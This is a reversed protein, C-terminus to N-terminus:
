RGDEGQRLTQPEEQSIATVGNRDTSTMQALRVVTLVVAVVLASYGIAKRFGASAAVAVVAALGLLAMAVGEWAYQGFGYALDEAVQPTNARAVDLIQPLLRALGACGIGFLVGYCAAWGGIKLAVARGGLSAASGVVLAAHLLVIAVMAPIVRDGAWTMLLTAVAASAVLALLGGSLRGESPTAAQDHPVDPTNLWLLVAAIALTSQGAIVSLRDNAALLVLLVGAAAWTAAARMTVVHEGDGARGPPGGAAQRLSLAAGLAVLGVVVPAGVVAWGVGSMSWGGRFALAVLPAVLALPGWVELVMGGTRVAPLAPLIRRRFVLLSILSAAALGAIAIVNTLLPPM